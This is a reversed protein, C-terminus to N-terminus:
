HTFSSNMSDIMKETKNLIIDEPNKYQSTLSEILHNQAEGRAKVEHYPMLSYVVRGYRSKFKQPFKKGIYHEFSKKRLFEADGVLESMERYNEISMQAMADANKKQTSIFHHIVEKWSENEEVLKSLLVCDELGLNAGQGFFPVIAHAADGILCVNDNISWDDAWVTGLPNDPNTSFQGELNPIIKTADPFNNKFYKQVSEKSNLEEFKSKPLYLTMTFSGDLNPLGMLMEKGRPWIHLCSMDLEPHGEDSRPIHLEKYNVGLWDPPNIKGYLRQQLKKRIISGAGDAAFMVNYCHTTQDKFHLLNNEFDAEIIEKDFLIEVGLKTAENLLFINMESRPVSYNEEGLQGYPQYTLVSERSHIMRGKVPITRQKIQKWKGIQEFANKARSTLILNISRGTESGSLRPDSRKEIVTVNFGKKRLLIGWFTGVLGAGIITIPKTKNM